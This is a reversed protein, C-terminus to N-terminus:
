AAQATAIKKKLESCYQTVTAQEKLDEYVFRIAIRFNFPTASLINTPSDKEACYVIVGRLYIMSAFDIVLAVEEGAVFSKSCFAGVGTPNLDGLFIRALGEREPKGGDGLPTATRIEATVRKLTLPPGKRGFHVSSRSSASKTKSNPTQWM